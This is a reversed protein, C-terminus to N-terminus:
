EEVLLFKPKEPPPEGIMYVHTEKFESDLHYEKKDPFNLHHIVDYLLSHIQEDDLEEEDYWRKTKQIAIKSAPLERDIKMKSGKKNYVTIESIRDDYTSDNYEANVRVVVKHADPGFYDEAFSKFQAHFERAKYTKILAEVEEISISKTKM